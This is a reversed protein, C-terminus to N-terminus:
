RFVPRGRDDHADKVNQLAAHYALRQTQIRLGQEVLHRRAANVRHHDQHNQRQARNQNQALQNRVRAM